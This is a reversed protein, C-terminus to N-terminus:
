WDITKSDISMIGIICAVLVDMLEARFNGLNNQHMADVLEKNEEHIIGYIEHTSALGTLGKSALRKHLMGRVEEQLAPYKELKLERRM